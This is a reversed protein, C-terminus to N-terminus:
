GDKADGWGCRKVRELEKRIARLRVKLIQEQDRVWVFNSFAAGDCDTRPPIERPTVGDCDHWNRTFIVIKFEGNKMLKARKIRHGFIDIDPQNELHLRKGRLEGILLVPLKVCIRNDEPGPSPPDGLDTRGDGFTVLPLLVLSLFLLYRM